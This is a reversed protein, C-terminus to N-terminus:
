RYFVGPKSKSWKPWAKPLSVADGATCSCRFLTRYEGPGMKLGTSACSQQYPLIQTLAHAEKREDNRVEATALWVVCLRGEGRCLKCDTPEWHHQQYATRDIASYGLKEAAKAIDAPSPFTRCEDILANLMQILQEPSFRRLRERYVALRSPNQQRGLVTQLEDLFIDANM